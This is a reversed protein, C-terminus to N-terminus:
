IRNSLYLVYEAKLTKGKEALHQKARESIIITAGSYQATADYQSTPREQQM